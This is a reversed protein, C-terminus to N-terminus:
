MLHHRLKQRLISMGSRLRSKVTTLPLTFHEALESQTFGRFYSFEFLTKQEKSLSTLAILIEEQQSSLIAHHEPKTSADAVFYERYEEAESKQRMSRLRKVAYNRAIRALWAGTTGYKGDYTETQDWVKLFVECLIDEAAAREKIIRMIISYLLTSHRDYLESLASVEGLTVRELLANDSVIQNNPLMAQM